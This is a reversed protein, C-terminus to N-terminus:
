MNITQKEAAARKAIVEDDFSPMTDLESNNIGSRAFIKSFTLLLIRLDTKFSINDVYWVDFSFKEDWSLSNRGNVQAWGSIGPLVEFRRRQEDSYFPDYRVPLPRPGIYSMDGKLINVLQPLEDISLDRIIKGVTTMREYDGLRNGNEDHTKLIMTRFKYIYFQKGNKGTRLQRFMVPGKSTIKILAAFILLFVGGILLMAFSFIIDIIRKVILYKKM